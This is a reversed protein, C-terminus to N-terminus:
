PTRSGPRRPRLRVVDACACAFRELPERREAERDLRVDPRDVADVGHEREALLHLGVTVREAVVDVADHHLDLIQSLPGLHSVGRPRRAPRDRVLKRGLLLRSNEVVDHDADTPGAPRRRERHELRHEDAARVDREGRQVVLVVDRALVHARAVGHDDPAGAVHDGFDDPRDEGLSRRAGPAPLEGRLARRATFGEHAEFALGIVVADVDVARHLPDLADHVERAAARHVDLSEALFPNTLERVRPQQPVGAVDEVQGDVPEDGEVADGLLACLREDVRHVGRQLPRQPTDEDSEADVVDARRRRLREFAAHPVHIADRIRGLFFQDRDVADPGRDRLAHLAEERDVAIAVEDVPKRAAPTM